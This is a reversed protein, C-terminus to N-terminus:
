DGQKNQAIATKLHPKAFMLELPTTLLPYSIGALLLLPLLIWGEFYALIFFLPTLLVLKAIALLIKSVATLHSLAIAVILQRERVKYASLEPLQSSFFYIM